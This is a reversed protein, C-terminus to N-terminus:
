SPARPRPTSTRPPRISRDKVLSMEWELSPDVISRQVLTRRGNRGDIWEFRRPWRSQAAARPQARRAARRAAPACTPYADATGHCDKCGIEIANAVEGYILGNGHSDQAFHCDACQMGKEAHIDMMHVAKGPNVGAPVFKGEGESAGNRRITPRRDTAKPM